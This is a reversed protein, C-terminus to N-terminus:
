RLRRCTWLIDDAPVPEPDAADAALDPVVPEPDAPLVSDPELPEPDAAQVVPELLAATVELADIIKVFVAKRDTNWMYAVANTPGMPEEFYITISVTKKEPAQDDEQTVTITADASTDM